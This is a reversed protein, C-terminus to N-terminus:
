PNVEDPAPATADSAILFKDFKPGDERVNLELQHGGAKLELAKMRGQYRLPHWAWMYSTDTVKGMTDEITLYEGDDFRVYVSDGCNDFWQARLFLYYTGDRPLEFEYYAKGPLAGGTKETYGGQNMWGDPCELYTIETGETSTDKRLVVKGGKEREEIRTFSECEIVAKAPKEIVVKGGNPPPGQEAVGTKVGPVLGGTSASPRGLLLVGGILLVVVVAAIVARNM